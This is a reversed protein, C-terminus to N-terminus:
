EWRKNEINRQMEVEDIDFVTLMFCRTDRPSKKMGLVYKRNDKSSSIDFYFIPVRMPAMNNAVAIYM